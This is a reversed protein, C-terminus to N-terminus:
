SPRFRKWGSFLLVGALLSCVGFILSVWATGLGAHFLWGAAAPAIASSVRGTGSVFGTGSARAEDDFTTALTAYMGSAAGFLLFGCLGSVLLLLPFVPPMMGFAAIALGLLIMHGSVLGRLSHRRALWGILLGGAVGALNAVASALSARTAAFGADAIMQPMWSLFFYITFVLMLNVSMIWLTAGIQGRAFVAAYGRRRPASDEPLALVPPQGCRALVANLRALSGERRRTLLYAISEPLLLIVVPLLLVAGVFGALFVARWDYHALLLAAGLGGVMGGVPYGIAMVAITFGRYRANAFEAAIPNIIAVCGGIGLGAIVRYLALEELSGAFSCFLMGLAMLVLAVVIMPKRGVMDALPALLFAGLAMGGLGAALVIGLAAKGIGWALTLAPAAFTVSLVDYGDLASLLFTIAIAIIQTRSMPAADLRARVGAAEDVSPRIGVEASGGGSSPGAAAPIPLDPATM